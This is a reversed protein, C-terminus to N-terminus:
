LLKNVFRAMMSLMDQPREEHPAHGAVLVEMELEHLYLSKLRELQQHTGYEDHQGRIALVPCKINPIQHEISWTLFSPHLWTEAWGHFCGEVNDGHYKALHDHLGTRRFADRTESIASIHEPETFLHPAEAIVGRLGDGYTSAHAGAYVLSITAGESHGILIVDRINLTKLLEPLFYRGQDELFTVPRPWTTSASKGHGVRSYILGPCGTQDCLDNPFNRWLEVCGLGHHLFVLTPKAESKRGIEKVEIRQELVEISPM